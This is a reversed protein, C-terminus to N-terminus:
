TTQHMVNSSELAHTVKKRQTYAPGLASGAGTAAGCFRDRSSKILPLAVEPKPVLVLSVVLMPNPLLLLPVALEPNPAVARRGAM